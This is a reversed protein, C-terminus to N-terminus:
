ARKVKRILKVAEPPGAHAKEVFSAERPCDLGRRVAAKVNTLVGTPALEAFHYAGFVAPFARLSLQRPQGSPGTAQAEEGRLTLRYLPQSVVGEAAAAGRKKSSKAKASNVKAPPPVLHAAYEQGGRQFLFILLDAPTM